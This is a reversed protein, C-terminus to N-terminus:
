EIIDTLPFGLPQIIPISNRNRLEKVVDTLIFDVPIYYTGEYQGYSGLFLKEMHKFEKIIKKASAKIGAVVNEDIGAGIGHLVRINKIEVTDCDFAVLLHGKIGNEKALESYKINSAIYAIINSEARWWREFQTQTISLTTDTRLQAKDNYIHSKPNDQSTALLSLFLGLFTLCTKKM